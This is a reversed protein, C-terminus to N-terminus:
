VYQKYADKRLVSSPKLQLVSRTFDISAYHLGVGAAFTAIYM